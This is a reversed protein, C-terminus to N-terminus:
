HVHTIGQIPEAFSIIKGLIVGMEDATAMVEEAINEADIRDFIRCFAWILDRWTRPCGGGQLWEKVIATLGEEKSDVTDEITDLKSLPINLHFGLIYWAKDINSLYKIVNEM